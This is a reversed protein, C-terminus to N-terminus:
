KLMKTNEPSEKRKQNREEVKKKNINNKQFKKDDFTNYNPESIYNIIENRKQNKYIEESKEESFESYNDNAMPLFVQENPYKKRDNSPSEFPSNKIQMPTNKYININSSKEEAVPLISPSKEETTNARQLDPTKM